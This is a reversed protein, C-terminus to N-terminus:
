KTFTTNNSAIKNGECPAAKQRVLRVAKTVTRASVRQTADIVMAM